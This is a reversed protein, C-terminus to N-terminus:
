VGGVAKGDSHVYLCDDPCLLLASPDGEAVALKESRPSFVGRKEPYAFGDRSDDTGHLFVAHEDLYHRVEGSKGFTPVAYFGAAARADIDFADNGFSHFNFQHKNVCEAAVRRWRWWSIKEGSFM